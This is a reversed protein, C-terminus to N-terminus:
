SEGLYIRKKKLLIPALYIKVFVYDLKAFNQSFIVNYFFAMNTKLTEKTHLIGIVNKSERM